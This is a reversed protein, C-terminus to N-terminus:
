KNPRIRKVMAPWNSVLTLVDSGPQYFPMKILLRQGDPTVSFIPEAQMPAYIDGLERTEIAEAGGGAFSLGAAMFRGDPREYFIEKTDGGWRALLGSNASVQWERDLSPFPRLYVQTNAAGGGRTDYAVWRGDPSFTAFWASSPAPQVRFPKRDGELPLIWPGIEEQQALTHFAIFKGDSSWSTPLTDNPWDLLREEVGSGMLSKRYIQFRGNRNSAFGVAQGDPSWIPYEESSSDFTFRVRSGRTLDFIWLDATFTTLDVISAAVKKGDPSLSISLIPGPEGLTGLKKGQRDFWTLQFPDNALEGTQFILMGNQSASFIGISASGISSVKEVVPISDGKLELREADFPQAILSHQKQYLLYGSSYIANSDARLLLRPEGGDLSGLLIANGQQATIGGVARGLFLFHLGDPLFFPLRHSNSDKTLNLDTIQSVEGGSESVKFLSTQANRAFVIVGRSSWSGGKGDTAEALTV